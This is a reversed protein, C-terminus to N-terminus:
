FVSRASSSPTGENSEPAAGTRRSSNLKSLFHLIEDSRLCPSTHSKNRSQGPLRSRRPGGQLEPLPAAGRGWRTLAPQLGVSLVPFQKQNPVLLVGPCGVMIRSCIWCAKPPASESKICTRPFNTWSVSVYEGLKFKHTWLKECDWCTSGLM